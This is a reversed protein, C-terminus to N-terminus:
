PAEKLVPKARTPTKGGVGSDSRFIPRDAFFIDDDFTKWSFDYGAKRLIKEYAKRLPKRVLNRISEPVFSLFGPWWAGCFYVNRGGLNTEQPGATCTHLASIRVEKGPSPFRACIHWYHQCPGRLCEMTARNLPQQETPEIGGPMPAGVGLYSSSELVKETFSSGTLIADLIDGGNEADDFLIENDTLDDTPM